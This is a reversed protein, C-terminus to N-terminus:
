MSTPDADLPFPLSVCTFFTMEWEDKEPDHRLIYLGGDEGRVKFYRHDPALWQDAIETVKVERRGIRFSRPAEEGRYGAYCNVTVKMASERGIANYGNKKVGSVFLNRDSFFKM